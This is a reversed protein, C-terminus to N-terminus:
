YRIQASYPVFYTSPCWLAAWSCLFTAGVGPRHTPLSCAVKVAQRTEVSRATDGRPKTAAPFGSKREPHVTRQCEDFFKTSHSIENGWGKGISPQPLASTAGAAPLFHSLISCVPLYSHYFPVKWAGGSGACLKIRVGQVRHRLSAHLFISFVKNSHNSRECASTSCM